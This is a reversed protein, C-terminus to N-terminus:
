TKLDNKFLVMWPDYTYLITSVPPTPKTSTMLCIVSWLHSLVPSPHVILYYMGEYLLSFHFENFLSKNSFENKILDEM